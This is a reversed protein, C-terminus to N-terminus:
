GAAPSPAAAIWASLHTLPAFAIDAEDAPLPADVSRYRFPEQAAPLPTTPLRPDFRSAMPMDNALSVKRRALASAIQGELNGVMQDREAPTYALGLLAEAAAITEATIMPAGNRRRPAPAGPRGRRGAARRSAASCRKPPFRHSQDLVAEYREPRRDQLLNLGFFAETRSKLIADQLDARHIVLGEEDGLYAVVKGTPDVIQSGGYYDIKALLGGERM